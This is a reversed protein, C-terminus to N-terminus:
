IWGRVWINVPGQKTAPMYFGSTVILSLLFDLQPFPCTFLSHYCTHWM